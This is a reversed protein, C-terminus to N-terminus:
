MFDHARDLVTVETVMIKYTNLNRESCCQLDRVSYDTLVIIMTLSDYNNFYLCLDIDAQTFTYM